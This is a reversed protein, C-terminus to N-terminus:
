LKKSMSTVMLPYEYEVPLKENFNGSKRANRADIVFDTIDTINTIWESIYRKVMNGKIGLQISRREQPAGYVDREPDWQCRVESNELCMKWNAHTEYIEESFTSLVSNEVILDFGERKMDIALIRQQGEKTAWGSRYMMWLFSPKIWTMRDLKFSNGFTGLKIAEDAIRDNYAQYVRVTHEDYIANILYKDM